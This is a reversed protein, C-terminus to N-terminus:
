NPIKPLKCFREFTEAIEMITLELSMEYPLTGQCTYIISELKITSPAIPLRSDQREISHSLCGHHRLQLFKKGGKAHVADTM